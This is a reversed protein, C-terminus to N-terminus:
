KAANYAELLSDLVLLQVRLRQFSSVIEHRVSNLYEDDGHPDEKAIESM